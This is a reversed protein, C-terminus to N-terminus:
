GYFSKLLARLYRLWLKRTNFNSKFKSLVFNRQHFASKHFFLWKLLDANGDFNIDQTFWQEEKYNFNIQYKEEFFLKEAARWENAYSAIKEDDSTFTDSLVDKCDVFNNGSGSASQLIDFIKESAMLFIKANDKEAYQSNIAKKYRWKVNFRDPLDSAEAHGIDPLINMGTRKFLGMSNWKGSKWLRIESIDNIYPDHFGSFGSHAWSDAYSHLAVGLQVLSETHEFENRAYEKKILAQKIVSEVIKSGPQVMFLEKNLGQPEDFPVFHFSIYLKKQAEPKFAWLQSLGKYATCIPDITVFKSAGKVFPDVGVIRRNNNLKVLGDTLNLRVPKHVVADDVFQSAGAILDADKESFGAKIALYKLTYYHFTIDM